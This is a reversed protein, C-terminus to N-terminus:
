NSSNWEQSIRKYQLIKEREWASKEICSFPSLNQIINLRSCTIHHLLLQTWPKSSPSRIRVFDESSDFRKVKTSGNMWKLKTQICSYLDLSSYQLRWDLYVNRYFLSIKDTKHSVLLFLFFLLHFHPLTTQVHWACQTSSFSSYFFLPIHFGHSVCSLVTQHLSRADISTSYSYSDYCSMFRFWSFYGAVVRCWCNKNYLGFLSEYSFTFMALLYMYLVHFQITNYPRTDQLPSSNIMMLLMKKKLFIKKLWVRQNLQKQKAQTSRIKENMWPFSLKERSKVIKRMKHSANDRIMM